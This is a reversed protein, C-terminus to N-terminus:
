VGDPAVARWVFRAPRRSRRRLSVALFHRATPRAEFFQWDAPDDDTEPSFSITVPDLEFAFSSLSRRMGEGTAKVFSEKLTWLRFFAETTDEGTRDRLQSVEEPSFFREAVRPNPPRRDVAEVDIGVADASCAAAVLGRTHSLNFQLSSPFSPHLAPKGRADRTFVWDAPGGGGVEALLRRALAHAAVYTVGEGPRLFRDAQAREEADLWTRWRTVAKKPLAEVEMTWVLVDDRPAGGAATTVDAAPGSMGSMAPM